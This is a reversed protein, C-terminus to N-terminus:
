LDEPLPEFGWEETSFEFRFQSGRTSYDEDSPADIIYTMRDIEDVESRRVGFWFGGIRMIGPQMEGSIDELNSIPASQGLIDIQEDGIIVDGQDPYINRAGDAKNQVKLIFECVTKPDGLWSELEDDPVDFEEQYAARAMCLVRVLEIEVGGQEQTAVYNAAFEVSSARATPTASPEATVLRTVEVERTVEQEVMRTVEQTVERTVEVTQPVEVERTVEVTQPEPEACGPALVALLFLTLAIRKRM